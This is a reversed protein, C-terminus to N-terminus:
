PAGSGSLREAGSGEPSSGRASRYKLVLLLFELNGLLYRRWMRAPEQYFRFAWELGARQMWRPARRVHGAYVDFTGGVGMAFPVQLRDLHEALWYEKRPSPMAVFLVEHHNCGPQRGTARAHATEDFEHRGAFQVTFRTSRGIRWPGDRYYMPRIGYPDPALVLPRDSRTGNFCRSLFGQTRLDVRGIIETPEDQIAVMGLRTVQAQPTFEALVDVASQQGFDRLTSGFFAVRGMPNHRCFEAVRDRDSQFHLSVSGGLWHCVRTLQPIMGGTPEAATSTCIRAM